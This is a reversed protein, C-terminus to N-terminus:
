LGASEGRRVLADARATVDECLAALEDELAHVATRANRLRRNVRGVEALVENLKAAVAILYDREDDRDREAM